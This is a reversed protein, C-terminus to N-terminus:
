ATRDQRDQCLDDLDLDLSVRGKLALMRRSWDSQPLIEHAALHDEMLGRGTTDPPAASPRTPPAATIKRRDTM